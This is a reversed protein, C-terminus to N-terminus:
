KHFSQLTIALLRYGLYGLHHDCTFRLTCRSKMNLTSGLDKLRRQVTEQLLTQMSKLFQVVEYNNSHITGNEFIWEHVCAAKRKHVNEIQNYQKLIKDSPFGELGQRGLMLALFTIECSDSRLLANTRQLFIRKSIVGNAGTLLVPTRSEDRSSECNRKKFYEFYLPKFLLSSSSFIASCQSCLLDIIRPDIRDHKAILESDAKSTISPRFELADINFLSRKELREVPDYLVSTIEHEDEYFLGAYASNHRNQIASFGCSCKYQPEDNPMLNVPLYVDIDSGKINMNCICLPCSNFNHDKFISLMSDSLVLTVVLSNIEPLSSNLGYLESVTSADLASKRGFAPQSKSAILSSQFASSSTTPPNFLKSSNENFQSSSTSSNPFLTTSSNLPYTAPFQSPRHPSDFIRHHNTASEATLSQVLTYGTPKKSSQNSQKNSSTHSSPHSTVKSAPANGLAPM